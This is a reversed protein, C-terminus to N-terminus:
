QRTRGDDSRDDAPRAFFVTLAEITEGGFQSQRELQLIVQQVTVAVFPQALRDSAVDEFAFLGVQHDHGEALRRGGLM